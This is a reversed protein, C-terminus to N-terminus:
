VIGALGALQDCMKYLDDLSGENGIVVRVPINWQESESAHTNDIPKRNDVVRISLARPDIRMGAEFENMFRMDACVIRTHKRAQQEWWNVWTDPWLTRFAETGIQQLWYRYTHGSPIHVSEKIEDDYMYELPVQLAHAVTQKLGDAFNIKTYGYNEVFRNAVSDKGHRKPGCITIVKPGSM